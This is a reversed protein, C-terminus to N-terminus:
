ETEEESIYWSPKEALADCYDFIGTMDLVGSVDWDDVQLQSLRSCGSFMHDMAIANEMNVKELGEITTLATMGQFWESTAYPRLEEAIVVRTIPTKSEHEGHCCISGGLSVERVECEPEEGEWQTVPVTALFITDEFATAYVATYRTPAETPSTTSLLPKDQRVPAAPEPAEEQCGLLSLCLLTILAASMRKGLTM